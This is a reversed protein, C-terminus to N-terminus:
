AGLRSYAGVGLVRKSLYAGPPKITEVSILLRRFYM